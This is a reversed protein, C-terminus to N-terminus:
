WSEVIKGWSVNKAKGEELGKDYTVWRLINTRLASDEECKQQPYRSLSYERGHGSRIVKSHGGWNTKLMVKRIVDAPLSWWEQKPKEPIKNTGHLHKLTEKQPDTSPIFCPDLLLVM